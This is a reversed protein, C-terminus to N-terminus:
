RTATNTGMDILHSGNTVNFEKKWGDTTGLPHRLLYILLLISAAEFERGLRQYHIEVFSLVFTYTQILKCNDM